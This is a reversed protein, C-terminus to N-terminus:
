NNDTLTYIVHVTFEQQTLLEYAEESEDTELSYILYHGNEIGQGTYCSGIDSIIEAPEGSLTVQGAPIGLMGKGEGSAGSAVVSLRWGSPLKDRVTAMVKRRHGNYNIISSYNIWIGANENIASLKVPNGAEESASAQINWSDSNASALSLLAVEPIHINIDHKTRM